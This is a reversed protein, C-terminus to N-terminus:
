GACAAQPQKDWLTDRRSCHAQGFACVCSSFRAMLVPSTRSTTLTPFNSKQGPRFRATAGAVFDHWQEVPQGRAELVHHQRLVPMGEGVSDNAELWEPLFGYSVM